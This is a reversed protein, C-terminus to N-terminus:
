GLGGAKLSILFCSANEDTQFREVREQRDRTKGDLYEYIVGESTWSRGSSPWSAPSSRSSWRRTGRRPSKM